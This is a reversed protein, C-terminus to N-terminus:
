IGMKSTLFGLSLSTIYRSVCVAFPPVLTVVQCGSELALPKGGGHQTLLLRMSLTKRGRAAEPQMFGIRLYVASCEKWESSRDM